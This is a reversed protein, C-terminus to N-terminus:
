HMDVAKGSVVRKAAYPKSFGRKGDSTLTGSEGAYVTVGALKAAVADADTSGADAIAKALMMVADYASDAGIDIPIKYRAEYQQQFDAKPTLFTLFELGEFGGQAADIATQDLSISFLPLHVGIEKLAKAVLSGIVIGDTTSVVADIGPTNKIKLADTRVDTSGPLPETEFAIRGGLSTFRRKFADSQEKVWVHQAGVLAVSRYGKKFVYDAVSESLVYDHPWTNFLYKNAENFKAMGLSPSIVITKSREAADILAIGLNSWTPGIIFKVHEVSSLQQFAAITKKPDGQDDQHSALLRKGLVGGDANIREIAMDIGNRAATGWSSGEGSLILISGVRIVPQEDARVGAVAGTLSFLLVAFLRACIREM